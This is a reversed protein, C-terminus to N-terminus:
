KSVTSSPLMYKVIKSNHFAFVDEECGLERSETNLVYESVGVTPSTTWLVPQSYAVYLRPGEAKLLSQSCKENIFSM